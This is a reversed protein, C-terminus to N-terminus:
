FLSVPGLIIVAITKTIVEKVIVAAMVEAMVAM